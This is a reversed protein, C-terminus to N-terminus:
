KNDKTLDEALWCMVVHAPLIYEIRRNFNTNCDNNTLSATLVVALIINFVVWSSIFMVFAIIADAVGSSGM